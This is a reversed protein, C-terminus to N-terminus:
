GQLVQTAFSTLKVSVKKVQYVSIATTRTSANKDLHSELMVDVYFYWFCEFKIAVCADFKKEVRRKEEFINVVRHHWAATLVCLESLDIM